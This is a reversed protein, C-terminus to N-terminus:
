EIGKEANLYTYLALSEERIFQLDDEKRSGFTYVSLLLPREEDLVAACQHFYGSANGYKAPIEAETLESLGEAVWNLKTNAMEDLIYVSLESGESAWRLLENYFLAISRPTLQGWRYTGYLFLSDAGLEKLFDNYGDIGFQQHLMSYADNDSVYLIYHMLERVTFDKQEMDRIVGSGGVNHRSTWTLVEDLSGKGAEIQRCVWYVYPVKIVSAAFLERDLNYGYVTQNYLDVACFGAARPYAQYTTWIDEDPLAPAEEGDTEVQIRECNEAALIAQRVAEFDIERLIELRSKPDQPEVVEPEPQVVPVDDDTPEIPEEMPESVPTQEAPTQERQCACLGALCLVALLFSLFRKRRHKNM